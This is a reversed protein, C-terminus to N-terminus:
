QSIYAFSQPPTIGYHKDLIIPNEYKTIRGIEIAYGKDKNSFYTFFASKSIGSYVKTKEWLKEIDDYIINLIEFEGIIRKIPSSAYVLIHKVGEKKFLSRRYEYRKYGDFIQQAYKPKISLLVKM